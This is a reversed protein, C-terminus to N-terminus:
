TCYYDYKEHYSFTKLSAFKRRNAEKSMGGGIPSPEGWDDTVDKNVKVSLM